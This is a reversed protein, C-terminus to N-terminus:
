TAGGNRRRQEEAAQEAAYREFDARQEPTERYPNDDDGPAETGVGATRRAPARDQERGLWRVVFAPMGRATKRRVPNADLWVAMRRLEAPVDVAPYAEQWAALQAVPVPYAVGNRNTPLHAAAPASGSPETCDEGTNTRQSGLVSFRSGVRARPAQGEAPTRSTSFDQQLQSSDDHCHRALGGKRANELRSTQRKREVVTRKQIWAGDSRVEFCRRLADRNAPWEDTSYGGWARVDDETMVGPADTQHTFALVDMYAGRQDRSLARVAPDTLWDSWYFLTCAPREHRPM